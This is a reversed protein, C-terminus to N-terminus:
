TNVRLWNLTAKLGQYEFHKNKIFKNIFRFSCVINNIIYPFIIKNSKSRNLNSELPQLNKWNFCILKDEEKTFNFVSIPIIHDIQWYSGYNEWTMKEDFQVELWLKLQNLECGLYKNFSTKKGKLVKNIKSKLVEKIKFNNDTIRKEKIKQKRIPLYEKCKKQIHKKIEPNSRYSKRQINIEIKNNERYNKNKEILINKNNIWYNKNYEKKNEKNEINYKKRCDKCDYRLGDKTGNSKGFNNISKNIKCKSCIKNEM